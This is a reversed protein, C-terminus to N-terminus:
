GVRNVELVAWLELGKARLEKNVEIEAELMHMSKSRFDFVTTPGGLKNKVSYRFHIHPSVPKEKKQKPAAIQTELSAQAKALENSMEEKVQAKKESDKGDMEALLASISKTPTSQPKEIGLARRMDEETLDFSM